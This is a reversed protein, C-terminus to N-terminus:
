RCGAGRESRRFKCVNHRARRFSIINHFVYQQMLINCVYWLSSSKPIQIISQISLHICFISWAFWTPWSVMKPLSDIPKNNVERQHLDQMHTQTENTQLHPSLMEAKLNNARHSIKWHYTNLNYPCIDIFQRNLEIDTVSIFTDINIFSTHPFMMGCPSTISFWVQPRAILLTWLQYRNSCNVYRCGMQRVIQFTQDSFHCSIVYSIISLTM